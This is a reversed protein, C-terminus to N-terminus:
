QIDQEFKRYYASFFRIFLILGLTMCGLLFGLIIYTFKPNSTTAVTTEPGFGKVVYVANTELANEYNVKREYLDATQTFPNSSISLFKEKGNKQMEELGAIEEDLKKIMARYLKEKVKRQRIVPESQNFYTVLSNQLITLIYHHTITATIKIFVQGRDRLQEKKVEYSLGVISEKQQRNIGPLSDTTALDSCLFNAENETLMDTSIMVSSQAVSNILQPQSSLRTYLFGALLGLGPCVIVLIINRKILRFTRAMLKLVDVEQHNPRQEM